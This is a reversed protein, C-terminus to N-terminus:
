KLIRTGMILTNGNKHIVSMETSLAQEGGMSTYTITCVGQGNEFDFRIEPSFTLGESTHQDYTSAESDSLTMTDGPSAGSCWTAIKQGLGDALAPTFLVLLLALCGLM